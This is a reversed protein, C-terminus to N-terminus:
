EQNSELVVVKVIVKPVQDLDKYFTAKYNWTGSHYGHSGPKIQFQVFGDMFTPFMKTQGSPTQIEFYEIQDTNEILLSIWFGNKMSDSIQFSGKVKREQYLQIHTSSYVEHEVQSMIDNFIQSLSTSPCILKDFPISM